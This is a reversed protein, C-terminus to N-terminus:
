RGVRPLPMHRRSVSPPALSPLYPLLYTPPPGYPTSFEQEWTRKAEAYSEAEDHASRYYIGLDELQFRHHDADRLSLPRRDHHQAYATFAEWFAPTWRVTANLAVRLTEATAWYADEERERRRRAAAVGPEPLLFALTIIGGM